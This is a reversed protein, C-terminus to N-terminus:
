AEVEFGTLHGKHNRQPAVRIGAAEAINEISSLGCAGDLLVQGYPLMTLGYLKSAKDKDRALTQLAEQHEAELYDALVTGQMDYGGGMTRYTKAGGKLSCINYGYTNRGRSTSWTMTLITM